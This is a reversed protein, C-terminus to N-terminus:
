RRAAPQGAAPPQQTSGSRAKQWSGGMADIGAAMNPFFGGWTRQQQPQQPQQSPQAPQRGRPQSQQQARGQQGRSAPQQERRQTARGV